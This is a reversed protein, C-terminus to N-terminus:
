SGTGAWLTTSCSALGGLHRRLLGLETVSSGRDRGSSVLALLAFHASFGPLFRQARLVRHHAALHVDDPTSRRQRAAELALVNTPDSVVESSRITSVIRNQDVPGLAGCTGLPTM